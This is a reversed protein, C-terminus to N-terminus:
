QLYGVFCSAFILLVYRWWANKGAFVNELYSM